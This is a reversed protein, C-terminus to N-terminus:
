GASVASKLGDLLMLLVTFGGLALFLREMGARGEVLDITLKPLYILFLPLLASLLIETGCFALVMPEQRRYFRVFFLIDSGISYHKPEFTEKGKEM